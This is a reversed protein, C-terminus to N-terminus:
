TAVNDVVYHCNAVTPMCLMVRHKALKRLASEIQTDKADVHGLVAIEHFEGILSEGRHDHASGSVDLGHHNFIECLLLPQKRTRITFRM